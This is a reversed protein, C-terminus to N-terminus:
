QRIVVRMPKRDLCVDVGDELMCEPVRTHGFRRYGDVKSCLTIIQLVLFILTRHESFLVTRSGDNHGTGTLDAKINNGWRHRPRGNDVTKCFNRHITARM